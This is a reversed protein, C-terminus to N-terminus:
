AALHRDDWADYAMDRRHNRLAITNLVGRLMLDRFRCVAPQEWRGFSGLQWALNVIPTTRKIREAEYARLAATLDSGRSLHRALAGADEIAQCAGQGVNFTMPHAADGLLTVRGEGWRKIPPRDRMDVRSIAEDPTAAIMSAAPERSDAYRELLRAVKGQEPEQERAPANSVGFWYLRGGGVRYYSFRKGRGWTVCFYDVPAKAPPYDIIAQWLTYGSYRHPQQGHIQARVASSIGDAGILLDARETRGDAFRATVGDSDQTFGVCQAGSVIRDAGVAGTLVPHLNARSVGVTPMGVVRSIDGVHWGSLLPGRWSRFEALELESGVARVSEDMGIHRLVHLANSWLHIGGGAQIAELGAAREYVTSEVGIARLALATTLGGIGGGVIIARLGVM